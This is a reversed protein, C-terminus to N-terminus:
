KTRKTLDALLALIFGGGFIPTICYYRKGKGLIFKIRSPIAIVSLNM